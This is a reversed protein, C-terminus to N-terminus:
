KRKIEYKGLEEKFKNKLRDESKKVQDILYKNVSKLSTNKFHHTMHGKDIWIGYGLKKAKQCFYYDEGLSIKGEKDYEFLFWPSEMKEIVERHIFLCTTGTADVEVVRDPSNAADPDTVIYGHEEAKKSLLPALGWPKWVFNIPAIIKKGNDLVKLIDLSPCVDSDVTMLWDCDGKLFERCILNRNHVITGNGTIYVSFKYDPNKVMMLIFKALEVRISGTTPIGIFIKERKASKPRVPVEKRNTLHPKGWFAMMPYNPPENWLDAELPKMQYRDITEQIGEQNVEIGWDHVGIVSGEPLLPVFTNFEKAKFGGDCILLIPTNKVYEKVKDISADSFVDDVVFDVDLKDFLKPRYRVKNDFTLLPKYGREICESALYVSLGGYYTGIEIIGKLQENDTLIKSIIGHLKLPHTKPIGVYHDNWETTYRQYGPSYNIVVRKARDFDVEGNYPMNAEKNM